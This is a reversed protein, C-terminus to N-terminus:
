FLNCVDNRTINTIKPLKEEWANFKLFYNPWSTWVRKNALLQLLKLLCLVAFITCMLLLSIKKNFSTTTLISSKRVSSMWHLETQHEEISQLCRLLVTRCVIQMIWRLFSVDSNLYFSLPQQALNFVCNLLFNFNQFCM